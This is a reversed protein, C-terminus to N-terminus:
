ALVNIAVARHFLAGSEDGGAVAPLYIQVLAGGRPPRPEDPFPLFKELVGRQTRIHAPFNRLRQVRNVRRRRVVIGLRGAGFRHPAVPHVVKADLWPSSLWLPGDYSLIALVTCGGRSNM